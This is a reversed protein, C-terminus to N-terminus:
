SGDGPKAPRARYPTHPDTAPIATDWYIDRRFGDQMHLFHEKAQPQYRDLAGQIGSRLRTEEAGAEIQALVTGHLGFRDPALVVYGSKITVGQVPKLDGAVSVTTFACRGMIGSGWALPALRGELRKAEAADRGLVAVLPQSDCAAVDLALRLTSLVPLAAGSLPAAEAAYQGSIRTMGVAMERASPFAWDPSRGPPALYRTADPTLLAFVTNELEGSPTRLMTKLVEAEARDEYTALRICVFQRSAQIVETQSLFSRDM